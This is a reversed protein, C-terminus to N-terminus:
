FGGPWTVFESRGLAVEFGCDVTRAGAEENYAVGRLKARSVLGVNRCVVTADM